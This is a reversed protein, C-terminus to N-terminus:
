RPFCAQMFTYLLKKDKRHNYKYCSEAVYLPTFKRRYHHHSGYWARKLLSWFGEITNTHVIGEVFTEQHNVTRHPMTKVVNYARYEDTMLISGNPNVFNRLFQLIGNGCLDTALRAVVQGGRQIAGLNPYLARLLHSEIESDCGELLENYNMLDEGDTM